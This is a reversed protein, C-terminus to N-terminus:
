PLLTEHSRVFTYWSVCADESLLYLRQPKPRGLQLTCMEPCVGTLWPPHGPDRQSQPSPLVDGHTQALPDRGLTQLLCSNNPSVPSSKAGFIALPHDLPSSPASPSSDSTLHPRPLTCLGQTARSYPTWHPLLPCSIDGAVPSTYHRHSESRQTM